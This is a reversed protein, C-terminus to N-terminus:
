SEKKKEDMQWEVIFASNTFRYDIRVPGAEKKEKVGWKNFVTFAFSSLGKQESEGLYKMIEHRM